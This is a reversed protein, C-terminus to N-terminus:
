PKNGPRHQPRKEGCRKQRTRKSAEAAAEKLLLSATAAHEGTAHKEIGTMAAISAVAALAALAAAAGSALGGTAAATAAAAGSTTGLVIGTRRVNCTTMQAADIVARSKLNLQEWIPEGAQPVTPALIDVQDDFTVDDDEDAEEFGSRAKRLLLRACWATSAATIALTMNGAAGTGKELWLDSAFVVTAAHGAVTAWLGWAATYLTTLWTQDGYGEEENELLDLALKQVAHPRCAGITLLGALLSIATWM